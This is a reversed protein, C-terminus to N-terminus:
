ERVCNPSSILRVPGKVDVGSSIPFQTILYNVTVDIPAKTATSKMYNHHVVGVLLSCLHLLLSPCGQLDSEQYCFLTESEFYYFSISFLYLFVLYFFPLFIYLVVFSFDIFNAM